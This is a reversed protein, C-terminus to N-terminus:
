ILVNTNEAVMSVNQIFSLPIFVPYSWRSSPLIALLPPLIISMERLFWGWLASILSSARFLFSAHM